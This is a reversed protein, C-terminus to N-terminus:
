LGQQNRTIPSLRSFQCQVCCQLQTSQRRQSSSKPCARHTFRYSFEDKKCSSSANSRSFVCMSNLMSTCHLYVVQQAHGLAHAVQQAHAVHARMCNAAQCVQHKRRSSRRRRRQVLMCIPSGVPPLPPSILLLTQPDIHVGPTPAVLAHPAVVQLM